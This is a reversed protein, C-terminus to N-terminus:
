DKQLLKQIIRSNELLPSLSRGHHLRSIIRAHLDTIDATVYWERKLLNDEHYVANTGIIRYFLGERYAAEFAEVANGTFMPLSTAAIIQKAGLRKLERMAKILTGGTGLMDDAMFVTKGSVDGLLRINTINSSSADRSVKSYDREKYLLALPKQLNGAYFKNRDVAGTDPSVVVLDPDNLDVIEKLKRLIQYSGHLNELILKNFSNEIEKSHIDVTIIRSAGSYECMQGFWRATLAERGKKKHQRSYPYTPLVLTVSEAGAELAADITTFLMIMHDNVSLSVKEDSNYFSLPYHNEVDQIIFVSMGKVSSLLESKFEGNAFRTFRVPLKFQPPRYRDVPRRRPDGAIRHLDETLNMTKWIEETPMDYKESLKSALRHYKKVYQRKLNRIVEASFQEAGPCAIIGLTTPKVISM